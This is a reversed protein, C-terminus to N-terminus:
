YIPQPILSPTINDVVEANFLEKPHRAIVMYKYNPNIGVFSYNGLEDSWVTKVLQNNPQRYLFVRCKCPALKKNFKERINGVITGYGINDFFDIISSEGRIRYTDNLLADQSKPFGCVLEKKLVSDDKFIMNSTNAYRPNIWPFPFNNRDRIRVHDKFRQSSVDAYIDYVRPLAATPKSFYESYLAHGLVLRVQGINGTFGSGIRIFGINFDYTTTTTNILVGDLFLKLTEGSKVFAYHHWTNREQSISGYMTVNQYNNIVSFSNSSGRWYFYWEPGSPAGLFQVLYFSGSGTNLDTRKAYFELTFNKFTPIYGTAVDLYSAGDFYVSPKGCIQSTTDVYAAGYETIKKPVVSLDTFVSSGHEGEFHLLLDTGQVRLAM